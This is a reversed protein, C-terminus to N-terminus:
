GNNGELKDFPFPFGVMSIIEPRSLAIKNFNNKLRMKNDIFISIYRLDKCLVRSQVRDGLSPWFVATLCCCVPGGLGWAEHAKACKAPTSRDEM